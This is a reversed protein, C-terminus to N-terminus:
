LGFKAFSAEASLVARALASPDDGDGNYLEVKARVHRLGLSVPDSLQSGAGGFALLSGPLDEWSELDNSQQLLVRVKPPSVITSNGSVHTVVCSLVASNMGDIEFANTFFEDLSIPHVSTGTFASGAMLRHLLRLAGLATSDASVKLKTMMQSHAAIKLRM